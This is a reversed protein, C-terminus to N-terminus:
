IPYLYFRDAQQQDVERDHVPAFINCFVVYIYGQDALWDLHCALLNNQMGCNSLYSDDFIKIVFPYITTRIFEIPGNILM